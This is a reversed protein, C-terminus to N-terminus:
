CVRPGAPVTKRPAYLNGNARTIQASADRRRRRFKELGRKKSKRM